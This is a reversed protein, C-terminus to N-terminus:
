WSAWWSPKWITKWDILGPQDVVADDKPSEELKIGQESVTALESM